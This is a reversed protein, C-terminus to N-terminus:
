IKKLDSFFSFGQGCALPLERVRHRQLELSGSERHQVCGPSQPTHLDIGLRDEKSKFISAPHVPM